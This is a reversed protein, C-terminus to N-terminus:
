ALGLSIVVRPLQKVQGDAGIIKEVCPPRRQGYDPPGMSDVIPPSAVTREASHGKARAENRKTATNGRGVLWIASEEPRRECVTQGEEM